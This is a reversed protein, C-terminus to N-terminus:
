LGFRGKLALFNQLVEAASLEKTYLLFAGINGQFPPGAYGSGITATSVSTVAIPYSNATSNGLVGNKYWRIFGPGRTVAVVATENQVVTFSSGSGQYNVGNGGSNGHYYSFDGAAEHTITGFGAYEHNYPNRRDGTAESPMLVMIITQAQAMNLGTTSFSGSSTSGNFVMNPRSYTTSTLTLTKNSVTSYWSSGSGPYSLVNDGEYYVGLGSTVIKPFENSSRLLQQQRLSMVGPASYSGDVGIFSGFGRDEKSM